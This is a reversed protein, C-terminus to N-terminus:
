AEALNDIEEVMNETIFHKVREDGSVELWIPGQDPEVTVDFRFFPCCKREADVFQVIREFAEGDAPFRFAWGAETERRDQLFNGFLKELKPRRDEKQAEDLKCALTRGNDDSM